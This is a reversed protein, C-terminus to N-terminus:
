ENGLLGAHGPVCQFSLAVRSSLLRFSGLYGLLVKTLFVSPDHLPPYPGVPFRNSFPGISLPIIKFPLSVM